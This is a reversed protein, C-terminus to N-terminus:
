TPIFTTPFHHVWRAADARQIAHPYSDYRELFWPYHDKVLKRNDGDTWLRYEWGPMCKRWTSSWKKFRPPLDSDRWSQHIIRPISITNEASQQTYKYSYIHRIYFFVPISLAIVLLIRLRFPVYHSVADMILHHFSNRTACERRRRRFWARLRYCRLHAYPRGVRYM